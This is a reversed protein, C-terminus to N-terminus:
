ILKRLSLLFRELHKNNSIDQSGQAAASSQMLAMLHGAKFRRGSSLHALSSTLTIRAAPTVLLHALDRCPTSARGGQLVSFSTVNWSHGKMGAKRLYSCSVLLHHIFPMPLGPFM